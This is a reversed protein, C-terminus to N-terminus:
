HQRVCISTATDRLCSDRSSLPLVSEADSKKINYYASYSDELAKLFQLRDLAM